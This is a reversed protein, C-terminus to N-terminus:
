QNYCSNPPTKPIIIYSFILEYGNLLQLAWFINNCLISVNQNLAFKSEVCIIWDFNQQVWCEDSLIWFFINKMENKKVYQSLVYSPFFCFSNNSLM